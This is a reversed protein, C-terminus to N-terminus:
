LEKQITQVIHNVYNERTIQRNAPHYTSIHLISDKKTFGVGPKHSPLPNTPLAQPSQIFDYTNGYIIVDPKIECIQQILLDQYTIAYNRIDEQESRTGGPIKKLNIYALSKLSKQVDVSESLKPITSYDAYGNRIAHSAYAMAPYTGNNKFEFDPNNLLDQTVSWGGGIQDDKLKEWAEKLVWLIKPQSAEYYNDNVIGDKIIGHREGLEKARAEYKSWLDTSM